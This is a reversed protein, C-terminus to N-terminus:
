YALKAEEFDSIVVRLAAVQAKTSKLQAVVKKAHEQNDWLDPAGM